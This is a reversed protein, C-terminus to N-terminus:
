ADGDGELWGRYVPAPQRVDGNPVWGAQLAAHASLVAFYTRGLQSAAHALGGPESALDILRLAETETWETRHRRAQALTEAQKRITTADM